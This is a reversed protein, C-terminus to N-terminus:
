GDIIYGDCIYDRTLVSNGTVYSHELVFSDEMVRANGDVTSDAVSSQVVAANGGIKANSIQAAELIVNDTIQSDEIDSECVCARGSITSDGSVNSNYIVSEGTVCSNGNINSNGKVVANGKVKAYGDIVSSGYVKANDYVWSCSKLLHRPLNKESHIYGGLEGKKVDLFDMLSRIRYLTSGDFYVTDDKLLEYKVDEDGINTNSVTGKELVVDGSIVSNGTIQANGKILATERIVASDKIIAHECVKAGEYVKAGGYIWCDSKQSLNYESEIFGGLDGKHVDRFDKVARIRYLRVGNDLLCFRDTVKYKKETKTM